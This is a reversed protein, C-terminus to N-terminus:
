IVKWCRSGGSESVSSPPLMNWRFVLTVDERYWSEVDSHIHRSKIVVFYTSTPLLM